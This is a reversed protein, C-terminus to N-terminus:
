PPPSQDHLRSCTLSPFFPGRRLPALDERLLPQAPLGLFQSDNYEGSEGGSEDHRRSELFQHRRGGRARRQRGRLHVRGHVHGARAVNSLRLRWGRQAEGRDTAVPDDTGDVDDPTVSGEFVYVVNGVTLDVNDDSACNNTAPDLSTGVTTAAITGQLVGYATVDLMRFAPKLLYQGQGPPYVLGKRMDWDFLLRLAEGPPM